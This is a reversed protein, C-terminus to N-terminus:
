GQEGVQDRRSATDPITPYLLEVKRAPWTDAFAAWWLTCSRLPFLFKTVKVEHRTGCSAVPIVLLATYKPAARAPGGAFPLTTTSDPTKHHFRCSAARDAAM